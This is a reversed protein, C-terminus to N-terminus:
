EVLLKIISRQMNQEIHLVYLGPPLLSGAMDRRDWRVGGAGELFSVQEGLITYISVTLPADAITSIRVEDRMPNPAVTLGEIAPLDEEVSNIENQLLLISEGGATSAITLSAEQDQVSTTRVCVEITEGAEITVPLSIAPEIVYSSAGLGGITISTIEFSPCDVPGLTFCRSQGLTDFVLSDPQAVLASQGNATITMTKAGGAEDFTITGSFAGEASLTIKIEISMNGGAPITVPFNPGVLEIGPSQVTANTVTIPSGGSNVLAGEVTDDIVACMPHNGLNLTEVGLVFVGPGAKPTVKVRAAASVVSDCSNKVKCTYSGSDSLAVAAIQFTDNTAGQIEVGDKLWQFQVQEGGATVTLVLKDGTKLDANTPQKTVTPPDIINVDVATSTLQPTCTGTIRCAYEGENTFTASPITYTPNTAGVIPSGDKLWQYTLGTGTATVSLEIPLGECVSKDVPQVTIAPPNALTIVAAQSTTSAGCTTVVCDYSGAHTNNANTVRYTATTAGPIDAGDKRWRYVLGAGTSGVVLEFAKGTCVEQSIPHLTIQPTGNIAFTATRAVEQGDRTDVLRVIYVTSPTQNAPITYAYTGASAAISNNIVTISNFNDSSMEIKVNTLGTQTWTVNFSAGQCFSNGASPSSLTAGSVTIQQSMVNWVDGTSNNNNDVANGAGRFTYTGHAAPATWQFPFQADGNAFQKAQTHTLESGVARSGAGPTMTGSPNGGSSTFAVNLGAYNNNAHDVIFTYDNTTGAKVTTPGNLVVSTAANATGGHCQGCGAQYYGNIGGPYSWVSATPLLALACFAMM